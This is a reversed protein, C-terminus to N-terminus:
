IYMQGSLTVLEDALTEASGYGSGSLLVLFLLARFIVM